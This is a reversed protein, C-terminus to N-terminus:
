TSVHFDVCGYGNTGLDDAATNIDLVNAKTIKVKMKLYMDSPDIFDSGANTVDFQLPTNDNLAATPGYYSTYDNLIVVQEHPLTDYSIESKSCRGLKIKKSTAM